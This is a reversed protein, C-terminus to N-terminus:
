KDHDHSHNPGHDHSHGHSHDHSHEHEHDPGHDHSHDHDHGHDHGHDHPRATLHDMQHAPDEMDEVWGFNADEKADLRAFYPKIDLVPSGDLADIPGLHLTAGDVRVLRVISLGIPNPRQPSRSAFLGVEKGGAWPPKVRLVPAGEVRDMAFLVYVYRFRDLEHLGDRYSENLELWFRGEEVERDVPQNPAREGYPTHLTGIAQYTLGRSTANTESM